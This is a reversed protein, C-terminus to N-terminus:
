RQFLQTVVRRLRSGLIGPREEALVGALLQPLLFSAEWEAEGYSAQAQRCADHAASATDLYGAHPQQNNTFM